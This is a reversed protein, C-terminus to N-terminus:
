TEGSHKIQKTLEVMAAFEAETTERLDELMITLRDLRADIEALRDHIPATAPTSVRGVIKRPFSKISM